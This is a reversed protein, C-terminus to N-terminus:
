WTTRRGATPPIQMRERGTDDTGVWVSAVRKHARGFREPSREAPPSWVTAANWPMTPLFRKGTTRASSERHRQLPDPFLWQVAVGNQHAVTPPTVTADTKALSYQTSTWNRWRNQPVSADSPRLAGPSAASPRSAVIRDTSRGDKDSKAIIYPNILFYVYSGITGTAYGRGSLIQDLNWTGSGPKTTPLYVNWTAARVTTASGAIVVTHSPGLAQTLRGQDDYTFDSVLNM